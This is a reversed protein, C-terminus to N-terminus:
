IGRLLGLASLVPDCRHAISALAELDVRYGAIDAYPTMAEGEARRRPLRIKRRMADVDMKQVYDILNEWIGHYGYDGETMERIADEKTWGQVVVRYAAMCVGTRDSGHECHVLVPMLKPDTTTRLFQM